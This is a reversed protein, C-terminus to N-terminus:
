SKNKNHTSKKVASHYEPTTFLDIITAIYIGPIMFVWVGVLFFVFYEVFRWFAPPEINFYRKVAYRVFIHRMIIAATYFAAITITLCAFWYNDATASSPFLVCWIVKYLGM